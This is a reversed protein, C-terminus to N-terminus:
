SKTRRHRHSRDEVEDGDIENAADAAQPTAAADARAPEMDPSRAIRGRSTSPESWGFYDVLNDNTSLSEDVDGCIHNAFVFSSNAFVPQERVVLDPPFFGFRVRVSCSRVSNAFQERVDFRVGVVPSFGKEARAFSTFFTQDFIPPRYSGVSVRM